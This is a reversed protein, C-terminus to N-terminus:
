ALLSFYCFSRSDASTKHSTLMLRLHIPRLSKISTLRLTAHMLHYVHYSSLKDIAQLYDVQMNNCYSIMSNIQTNEHRFLFPESLERKMDINHCSCVHTTLYSTSSPFSLRSLINQYIGVPVFIVVRAPGKECGGVEKERTRCSRELHLLTLHRRGTSVYLLSRIYPSLFINSHRRSKFKTRTFM